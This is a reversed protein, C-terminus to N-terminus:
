ADAGVGRHEADDLRHEEVGQGVGVGVADHAQVVTADVARVVAPRDADTREQVDRLPLARESLDSRELAARAFGHVRAVAVGDDGVDEPHLGCEEGCEADGCRPASHKAVFVGRGIRREVDDDSM